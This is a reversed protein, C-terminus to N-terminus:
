LHSPELSVISAFRSIMTKLTGKNYIFLLPHLKFNGNCDADTDVRGAEEEIGMEDGTWTLGSVCKEPNKKSKQSVLLDTSDSNYM